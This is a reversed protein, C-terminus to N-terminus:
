QFTIAASIREVPLDVSSSEMAIIKKVTGCRSFTASNAVPWLSLWSFVIPRDHRTKLRTARFHVNGQKREKSAIPRISTTTVFNLLTSTFSARLSSVSLYFFYWSSSIKSIFPTITRECPYEECLLQMIKFAAACFISLFTNYFTLHQFLYIM